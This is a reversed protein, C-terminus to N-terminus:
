MSFQTAMRFLNGKEDERELDECFNKMEENKSKFIARKADGKARNYDPRRTWVFGRLKLREGM